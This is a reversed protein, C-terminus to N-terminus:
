SNPIILISARSVCEVYVCYFPLIRWGTNAVNNTTSDVDMGSKFCSTGM